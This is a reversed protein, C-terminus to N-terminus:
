EYAKVERLSEMAMEVAYADTSEQILQALLHRGEKTMALTRGAERRVLFNADTLSKTLYAMEETCKLIGIYRITFLQIEWEKRNLLSLIIEKELPEQYAIAAKLARVLIEEETSEIAEHICMACNPPQYLAIYDLISLQVDYPFRTFQLAVEELQSPTMQGFLSLWEYSSHEFLLDHLENVQFHADFRILYKICAAEEQPYASVIQRVENELSPILFYNSYLLARYRKMKNTVQLERKFLDQFYYRAIEHIVPYATDAAQEKKRKLEEMLWYLQEQDTVQPLENIEHNQIANAISHEVHEMKSIMKETSWKKIRKRFATYIFLFLVIFLCILFLIFLIELPKM